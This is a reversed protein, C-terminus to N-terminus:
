NLFARYYYKTKGVQLTGTELKKQFDRKGDIKVVPLQSLAKYFPNDERIGYQAINCDICKAAAILDLTYSGFEEKQPFHKEFSVVFRGSETQALCMLSPSKSFAKPSQSLEFCNKSDQQPEAYGLFGAFMLFSLVVIKM